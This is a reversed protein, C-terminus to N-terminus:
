RIKQKYIGIKVLIAYIKQGFPLMLIDEENFIRLVLISLVYVIGAVIIAIITAMKPAIIGNLLIYTGYSVIGMMVSALIPKIVMKSFSMKLDITRRLVTFVIGFAIIHCVDTAFAAGAAGGLLHTNPILIINLIFKTLVGISLAIAPITVKGLGQLAGNITQEMATFITAVVCVQFVWAGEPANPAVLKLIPDAFIIMGVVAPLVIVITTLLSFSIRKVGQRMDGTTRAATIAPVLATAFAVNFSLPLSTLTEIKNLIGYQNTAVDEGVIGKLLNVVSFSDINKNISVLISSISIPISVLLISKVIELVSKKMISNKRTFDSDINEDVELKDKKHVKYYSMLYLFSGVIALTTALNAGAAMLKTNCGSATAIIEVIIITFVTKFVQELTQSNATVKIKSRGNFFGRIVSMISVFFISPSLAVLTMEADPMGTMNAISRAGLLLVLTGCMGIVAFTAFAIKFIRHAGRTDGLSLREAILKAVANPVGISSISLLLAYIQYGAGYIANGKDGFGEKNTLYLRYVLGLLKILVQSFMLVIVGQMFSEKKLKRNKTRGAVM